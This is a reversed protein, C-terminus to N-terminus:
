ITGNNSYEEWLKESYAEIEYEDKWKGAKVFDLIKDNAAAIIEEANEPPYESGWSELTWYNEKAVTEANEDAEAELLENLEEATIWNYRRTYDQTTVVGDVAYRHETGIISGNEDEIDIEREYINLPDSADSIKDAKKSLILHTKESGYVRCYYGDFKKM